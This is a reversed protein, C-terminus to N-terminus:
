VNMEVFHFECVSQPLLSHFLRLFNTKEQQPFKIESHKTTPPTWETMMLLKKMINRKQFRLMVVFSLHFISEILRFHLFGRCSLINEQAKKEEWLIQIKRIFNLDVRWHIFVKENRDTWKVDKRRELVISSFKPIEFLYSFLSLFNFIGEIEVYDHCSNFEHKPWKLSSAWYRIVKFSFGMSFKPHIVIPSISVYRVHSSIPFRKNGRMWKWKLRGKEWKWMRERFKIFIRFEM